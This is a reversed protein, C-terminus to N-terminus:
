PLGYHHFWVAAGIGLILLILLTGVIWGTYLGGESTTTAAM